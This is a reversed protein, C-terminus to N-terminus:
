NDDEKVEWKDGSICENCIDLTDSDYKSIRNCDSCFYDYNAKAKQFKTETMKM